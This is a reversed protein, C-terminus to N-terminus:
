GAGRDVVGEVLPARFMLSAQPRPFLTARGAFRRHAAVGGRDERRDADGALGTSSAGPRSQRRFRRQRPGRCPWGGFADTGVAPAISTSNVGRCGAALFVKDTKLLLRIKNTPALIRVKLGSILSDTARSANDYSM